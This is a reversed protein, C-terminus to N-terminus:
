KQLIKAREVSISEWKDTDAYAESLVEEPTQFFPEKTEPQSM